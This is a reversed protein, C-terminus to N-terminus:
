RYPVPPYPPELCVPARRSGMFYAMGLAVLVVGAVIAANRVAKGELQERVGAEATDRIRLAQHKLDDVTLPRESSAKGSPPTVMEASM